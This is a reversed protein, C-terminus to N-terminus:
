SVTSTHRYNFSRIEWQHFREIALIAEKTFLNFEKPIKPTNSKLRPMNGIDIKLKTNRELEEELVKIKELQFIRSVSWAENNHDIGQLLDRGRENLKNQSSLIFDLFAKQLRKELAKSPKSEALIKQLQKQKTWRFSSMTRDFPNRLLGFSYYNKTEPYAAHAHWLPSHPTLVVSDIATRRIFKIGRAKLRKKEEKNEKLELRTTICDGEKLYDVLLAELSSCATKTTKVFVFKHAHSILM